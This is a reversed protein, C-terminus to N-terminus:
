RQWRIQYLSYPPSFPAKYFAVPPPFYFTAPLSTTRRGKPDQPQPEKLSTKPKKANEEGYHDGM